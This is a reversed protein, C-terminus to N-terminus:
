RPDGQAAEPGELRRPLRPRHAASLAPWGRRAQTHGGRAAAGASAAPLARVRGDIKVRVGRAKPPKKVGEGKPVTKAGEGQPLPTPHPNSSCTQGAASRPWNRRVREPPLVAGCCPCTARARSVTGDPVEKDSKPEFVEFEVWPVGEREGQSLTPTLAQWIHELVADTEQLVEHNWFRLVRLGRRELFATRREDGRRQEAHQGGDVEVVLNAEHCYFDVVYPPIPHQRRFKAGAIRRDRLLRWLTSEADTQEKRLSRAFERLETPLVPPGHHGEGQGRGSPSPPQVVKYRLARRRSAKKCLWFSRM